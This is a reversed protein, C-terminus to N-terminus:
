LGFFASLGAEALAGFLLGQFYRFSAIKWDYKALFDAWDHAAKLIVLDIGVASALGIAAGHVWPMAFFDHM